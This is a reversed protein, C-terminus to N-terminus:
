EIKKLFDDLGSHFEPREGCHAVNEPTPFSSQETAAPLKAWDKIPLFLLSRISFKNEIGKEAL